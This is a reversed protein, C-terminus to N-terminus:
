KKVPLVTIEESDEKGIVIIAIGAAILAFSMFVIYGYDGLSATSNPNVSVGASTLFKTIDAGPGKQLTDFLGATVEKLHLRTMLDNLWDPFVGTFGLESWAMLLSTLLVVGGLGLIVLGKLSLIYKIM